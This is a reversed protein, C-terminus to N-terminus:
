SKSPYTRWGTQADVQNDCEELGEFQQNRRQRSRQFSSFPTNGEWTEKVREDHLRKWKENQKLSILDNIRQDKLVKKIWSSHGFKRTVLEISKQQLVPTIKWHLNTMSFLRSKLGGLKQCLSATNTMRTGDGLINKYGGHKPQRAKQLMEKAKFYMRQRESAGHKVGHTLNKRIVYGPIPLADCNKKDLKKTSQSPKLCRGCSCYVIGIEWFLAFDPCQKKSSTECLEFIETSGM